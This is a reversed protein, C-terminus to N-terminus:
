IIKLEKALAEFAVTIKHTRAFYILPVSIDHSERVVVASPIKTDLVPMNEAILEDLLRTPLKARSQFQNAIIGEVQLADNHDEQIEEVTDMLNYLAQRAFDDCDFPVLCRDAAILASRSYFNLAPPTDIFVEDYQDLKNLADRLKYIKHHSELKSELEGLEPHAGIVDLNAFPTATVCDELAVKSGRKLTGAMFDAVTKETIIDESSLLYQSSNCQPDLDVVLTKKGNDAAIAALNCTITSKGVGGKQNFIIRRM